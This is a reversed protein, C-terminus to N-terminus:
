RKGTSRPSDVESKLNCCPLQQHYQAPERMAWYEDVVGLLHSSIRALWSQKKMAEDQRVPASEAM